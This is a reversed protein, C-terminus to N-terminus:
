PLRDRAVAGCSEPELAGVFPETGSDVTRTLTVSGSPVVTIGLPLPDRGGPGSPDGPELVLVGGLGGVAAGGVEFEGDDDGTIPLPLLGAGRSMGRVWVMREFEIDGVLKGVGPEVLLKETPSAPTDVLPTLSM